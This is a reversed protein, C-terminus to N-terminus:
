RLLILLPHTKRDKGPGHSAYKSFGSPDTSSSCCYRVLGARRSTAARTRSSLKLRYAMLLSRQVGPNPSRNYIHRMIAICWHLSELLCILIIIIILTGCNTNRLLFESNTNQLGDSLDVQWQNNTGTSDVYTSTTTGFAALDMCGCQMSERWKEKVLPM